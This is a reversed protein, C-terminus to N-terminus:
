KSTISRPSTTEPPSKQASYFLWLGALALVLGVVIMLSRSNTSEAKSPPAKVPEPEPAVPAFPMLAEGFARATQFRKAPDRELSREIIAAVGKPLDPRLSLASRPPETMIKTALILANKGEWPLEGTLLEFLCVGLSWVDSRADVDRSSTLQEPSMYSPTGFVDSAATEFSGREMKSIGFDVVKVHPTGDEGAAVFLNDPKVDRHIIGVSHAEEIARSAEILIHAARETPYYGDEKLIQSVSRGALLEMLLFKTGDSFTGTDEILCVHPNKLKAAARAEQLFRRAVVKNDEAEPILTKLAFNKGTALSTVEHVIGVGGRGIVRVVRYRDDIVDGPNYKPM